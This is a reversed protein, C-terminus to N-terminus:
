GNDKIIRYRQQYSDVREHQFISFRTISIITYFLIKQTSCHTIQVILITNVCGVVVSFRFSYVVVVRRWWWVAGGHGGHGGDGGYRLRRQHVISDNHLGWNLLVRGDVVAGRTLFSNNCPYNIYICSFCVHRGSKNTSKGQLYIRSLYHLDHQTQQRHYTPLLRPKSVNMCNPVM